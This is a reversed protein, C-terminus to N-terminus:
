PRTEPAPTSSPTPPTPPTPTDAPTSPSAANGFDEFREPSEGPAPAPQEIWGRERMVRLAEAAAATQPHAALLRKLVYRSGVPDDRRLYYRSTELMSQAASEDIRTLLAEDIGAQAAEVPYLSRFRRINVEADLLPSTDYRPGKFRALSAYIKRQMARMRYQSQPFNELFLQYAEGALEMEKIRYYYDGLEIGAREALRSGPLREQTRILLEVGVDSADLIRMGFFKRELGNLYKLAIEMEREIATVYEPTGAFGRIVAEYDYLANFENGRLSIADGRILYAQPVLPSSSRENADLWPDIIAFAEDPRDEALARRARAIVDEDSGPQPAVAVQWQGQDDPKFETPPTQPEAAALAFALSLIAGATLM